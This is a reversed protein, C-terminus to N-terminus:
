TKKEQTGNGPIAQVDRCIQCNPRPETDEPLAFALFEAVDRQPNHICLAEWDYACLSKPNRRLCCNRPNLDCHVYTLPYLRMKAVIEQLNCAITQVLDDVCTNWINPMRKVSNHSSLKIHKEQLAFLSIGDHLTARLEEPLLTLKDLFQAHFSAAVKLFLRSIRKKGSIKGM